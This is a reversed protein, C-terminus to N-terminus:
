VKDTADGLGRSKFTETALRDIMEDLSAGALVAPLGKKFEAYSSSAAAHKEIAKEMDTLMPRWDKLAEQELEDITDPNAESHLARQEDAGIARQEAIFEARTAAASLNSGPGDGFRRNADPDDEPDPEPEPDDDTPPTPPVPPPEPEEGEVGPAKGLIDVGDEPAPIKFKERVDGVAIQLGRDMLPVVAETFAQLDESEERGIFAIPVETDPGYNLHVMPRFLQLALTASLKFGDSDVLDDRVEAHVQAQAMSSGDEVTMTQGLVNKSQQKNLWNALREFLDGGGGGGTSAQVLELKMDEPIVAGADTGIQRVATKLTEVDENTAGIPYKGLRIPMGFVESYAMWDRVGFSKYIYMISCPRALGDRVTPGSRLRARHDIFKFPALPIGNEPDTDDRLRLTKGDAKDFKFWRPDRWEFSSPLWQAGSTDWMIEAVAYGKGIADLLDSLLFRFIPEQTFKRIFDAVEEDRADDSRATVSVPLGGVTLKRTGLVSGYHPDREEIEQALTLMDFADGTDARRIASALKAPTLGSAFSEEPLPRRVGSVTPDAIVRKLESTEVPNGNHDLLPM